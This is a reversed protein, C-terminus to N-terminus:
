ALVQDESEVERAGLRRLSEAGVSRGHTDFSLLDSFDLGTEDRLRLLSVQYMRFPDLELVELDNLMNRQTVVYARVEFSDDDADHYALLKWYDRPIPIGRYLVDDERFIPGAMVSVRLDLVEAEDLILNELRGWLGGRSSQNFRAHQPAINTYYFSEENAKKAEALAGWNLDARRALHGRDLNNNNYLDNNSQHAKDVRPDLKFNRRRLSKRRAGDINWAVFRALRRRKSQCISFHTHHILPSEGSKVADAYDSDTLWPRPVRTGLFDADYGFGALEIADPAVEGLQINLKKFVSHAYCALAHEDPNAGGEGAFHLGVMVNTPKGRNNSLMWISGSDGGMSIEFDSGAGPLPEIEFAGIDQPGVGDYPIRAIVDTRRVIGRTVGTTRGSKVVRDDLEVRQIEAPEVNLELINSTVSRDEIRAIACDGAEGLHSRVLVGAHNGVVRNDDFPGPQVVPDGVDGRHGHLVHWNSLMCREGTVRDYVIAGLTGATGGIHSVSVGPAIPDVRKKRPSTGESSTPRATLKFDREIIDTPISQGEVELTTPILVTDLGEITTGAHEAKSKVTFQLCLVRTRKGKTIKRGIGISTINPDDLFTKGQKRIYDRLQEIRKSEDSDKAAGGSVKQSRDNSDKSRSVAKKKSKRKPSM